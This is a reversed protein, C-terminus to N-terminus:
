GGPPKAPPPPLSSVPSHVDPKPSSKPVRSSSKKRLDPPLTLRVTPGHIKVESWLQKAFSTAVGRMTVGVHSPGARARTARQLKATLLCDM